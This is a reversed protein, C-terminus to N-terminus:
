TATADSLRAFREDPDDDAADWSECRVAYPAPLAVVTAPPRTAAARVLRFRPARGTGAAATPEPPVDIADLDPRRELEHTLRALVDSPCDASPVTDGDVVLVDGDALLRAMVGLVWPASDGLDTDLRHVTRRSETLLQATAPDSTGNDVFEVRSVGHGALWALLPEIARRRNRVLVVTAPAPPDSYGMGQRGPESPDAVAGDSAGREGPPPADVHGPANDPGIEPAGSPPDSSGSRAQGPLARGIQRVRQGIRLEPISRLRELEASVAGLEAEAAALRARLDLLDGADAIHARLEANERTLAVVRAAHDRALEDLAAIQADVGAGAM